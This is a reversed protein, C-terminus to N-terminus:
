MLLKAAALLVVVMALSLHSTPPASNTPNEQMIEKGAVFVKL